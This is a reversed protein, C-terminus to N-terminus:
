KVQSSVISCKDQKFTTINHKDYQTDKYSKGENDPDNSSSYVKIMKNSVLENYESLLTIKMIPKGGSPSVIRGDDDAEYWIAYEEIYDTNNLLTKLNNLVDIDVGSFCKGFVCFYGDYDSSLDSMPFYMTSYSSSFGSQKYSGRTTDWTRWLGIYGAKNTLNSGTTGNKAFDADSIAIPEKHYLNGDADRGFEGLMLQSYEIGNHDELLYFVADNYYGSNVIEKVKKSANPALTNNVYYSITIENDKDSESDYLKFTITFSSKKECATFTFVMLVALLCTLIKLIFKKM